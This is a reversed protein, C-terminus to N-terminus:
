PIEVATSPAVGYNNESIYEVTVLGTGKPLGTIPMEMLACQTRQVNAEALVTVSKTVGGGTFTLKCVGGNEAFNSVDAMAFIKFVKASKDIGADFLKVDAKGLPKSPTSSISPSPSPSSDTATPSQSTSPNQDTGWNPYLVACGSLSIMGFAIATTLLTKKM